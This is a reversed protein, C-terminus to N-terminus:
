QVPQKKLWAAILESVVSEMPKKVLGASGLISPAGEDLRLIHTLNPIVHAETPGNARKVIEAVDAPDCQLDKEGGIILMPQTVQSFVESPNLIMLERFWRAPLKQLGVRITDAGSSKISAILKKQSALPQGVVRAILRNVAGGFGPAGDFEKQIQTAQKILISEMNDIFPSLLILGATHPRKLGVQPAIISGESHGLLFIKECFEQEHLTDFWKVADEVLDFHGTALFNGSSKGVGRKDYRLSAFGERALAHALTNFVHLQQGPMNEDRDIPGSGAIMLVSPFRGSQAPLCLTGSLINGNSHTTIEKEVM